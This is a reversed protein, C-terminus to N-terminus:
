INHEGKKPPLKGWVVEEKGEGIVRTIAILKGDRIIAYFIETDAPIMKICNLQVDGCFGGDIAQYKELNQSWADGRLVLWGLTITLLVKLATGTNM